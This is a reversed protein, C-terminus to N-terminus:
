RRQADRRDNGSSDTVTGSLSQGISGDLQIATDGATGIFGDFGQQGPSQLKIGVRGAAMMAVFATVMTMMFPGM